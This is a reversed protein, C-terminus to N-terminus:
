RAASAAAMARERAVTADQACASRAADKQNECEKRAIAYDANARAKAADYHTRTGPKYAAELEAGAVDRAGRARTVCLEAAHGLHAGCKQRDAEYQAAIRARTAKYEDKAMGAAASAFAICTIAAAATAPITHM